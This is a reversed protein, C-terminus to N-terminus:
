AAIRRTVGGDRGIITVSGVQDDTEPSSSFNTPSSPGPYPAHLGLEAASVGSETPPTQGVIGGPIQWFYGNGPGRDLDIDTVVQPESGSRSVLRLVASPQPVLDRRVADLDVSGPLASTLGEGMSTENAQAPKNQPNFFTPM